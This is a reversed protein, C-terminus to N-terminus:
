GWWRLVLDRCVDLRRAFGAGLQWGNKKVLVLIRHACLGLNAAADDVRSHLPHLDLELPLTSHDLTLAAHNRRQSAHNLTLAAFELAEAELDSAQAADECVAAAATRAGANAVAGIGIGAAVRHDEVPQRLAHAAEDEFEEAAVLPEEADGADAM